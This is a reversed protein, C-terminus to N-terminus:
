QGDPFTELQVADGQHDQRVGIHGAPGHAAAPASRSGIPGADPIVGFQGLAVEHDVDVVADTAVQAQAGHLDLAGAPIVQDQLILAAVANVHGRVLDVQD